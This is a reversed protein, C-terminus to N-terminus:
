YLRLAIRQASKSEVNEDLDDKTTMTKAM